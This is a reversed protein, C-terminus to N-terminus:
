LFFSLFSFSFLHFFTLFPFFSLFFSLYVFIFPFYQRFFLFFSFISLFLKKVFSCSHVISIVTEFYYWILSHFFYNNRILLIFLSLFLWVLSFSSLYFYKIVFSFFFSASLFIFYFLDFRIIYVFLFFHQWSFLLSYLILCFSTFPFYSLSCISLHCFKVAFHVIIVEPKQVVLRCVDCQRRVARSGVLQKQWVSRREDRHTWVSRSVDANQLRVSFVFDFLFGTIFFIPAHKSLLIFSLGRSVQYVVEAVFRSLFAYSFFFIYQRSKVEVRTWIQNEFQASPNLHWRSAFIASM